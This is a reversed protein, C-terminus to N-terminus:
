YTYTLNVTTVNQSTNTDSYERRIDYGLGLGLAARLQVNFETLSRLISSDRGSEFGAHQRFGATPSIRYRYDVGGSAIPVSEGSGAARESHRVGAGLEAILSQLDDKLFSHGLGATIGAQYRFESASDKEFQEQLYVYDASDLGWKQKSRLLYRAADNSGTSDRTNLVSVHNDLGFDGWQRNFDAKFSLRSNSGATGSQSYFGVDTRGRWGDVESTDALACASLLLCGIMTMLRSMRKSGSLTM